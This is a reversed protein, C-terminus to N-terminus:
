VGPTLMYRSGSTLHSEGGPAGDPDRPRRRERLLSRAAWRAARRSLEVGQGGGRNADIRWIWFILYRRELTYRM